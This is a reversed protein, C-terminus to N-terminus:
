TKVKVIRIQRAIEWGHHNRCLPCTVICWTLGIKREQETLKGAQIRAGCKTVIEYLENLKLNPLDFFERFTMKPMEGHM